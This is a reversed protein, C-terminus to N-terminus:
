EPQGLAIVAMMIAFSNNEFGQFSSNEDLADAISTSM